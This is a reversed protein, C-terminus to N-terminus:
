AGDNHHLLLILICQYLANVMILKLYILLFYICYEDYDYKYNCFNPDIDLFKFFVNLTETSKTIYGIVSEM